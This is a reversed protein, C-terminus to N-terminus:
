HTQWKGNNSVPVCYAKSYKRLVASLSSFGSSMGEAHWADERKQLLVHIIEHSPRKYTIVFCGARKASTRVLFSGPPKKELMRYADAGSLNGHYWDFQTLDVDGDMHLEAMEAEFKVILEGGVLLDAAQGPRPQLPLVVETKSRKLAEGVPVSCQGM